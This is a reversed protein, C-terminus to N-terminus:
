WIVATLNHRSNGIWISLHGPLQFTPTSLHSIYNPFKLGQYVTIIINWKYKSTIKIRTRMKVPSFLIFVQMISNSELIGSSICQGPCAKNVTVTLEIRIYPCPRSMGPGWNKFFYKVIPFAKDKVISGSKFGQM